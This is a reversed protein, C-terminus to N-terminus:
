EKKIKLSYDFAKVSHTLSGVSLFDLGLSGFKKVKEISMNGSAEFLVKGRGLEVSQAMTDTDMNDLMIIDVAEAVAEEVESITRCEVEISFRDQWKERVKRVANRISGAADIHNDKILVMDYLGMRHNKGGGTVVAYKSLERYGPLTKRTDLIVTKGASQAAEVFSRTATAIGSLFAIFNIAIRECSLIQLTKGAVRAVLDGPCLRDGDQKFFTVEISSDLFLFADKFCATGCLVGNDKSLLEATCLEDAFIARSTVDGAENLDEQFALSLLTQFASQKMGAIM